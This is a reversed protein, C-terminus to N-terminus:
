WSFHVIWFINRIIAMQKHLIYNIKNKPYSMFYSLNKHSEYSRTKSIGGQRKRKTKNPQTETVFKHKHPYERIVNGSSRFFSNSWFLVFFFFWGIERANSAMRWPKHEEKILFYYFLVSQLLWTKYRVLMGIVRCLETKSDNSMINQPKKKTAQCRFM